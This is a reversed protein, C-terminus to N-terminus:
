TSRSAQTDSNTVIGFYVGCVTKRAFEYHKWAMEELARELKKRFFKYIHRGGLNGANEILVIDCETVPLRSKMELYTDDNQFLM